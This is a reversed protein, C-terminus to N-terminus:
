AGEKYKKAALDLDLIVRDLTEDKSDPLTVGSALLHGGGGYKNAIPQVHPGNSRFEAHNQGNEQECFFAWIPYGDINSILNVMSGAKNPKLNFRNLTEKDIKLYIVGNETKQYHTFVYGKFAMSEENTINLIRNIKTPDAGLECLLAVQRFAKPFDHIYQFRGTDTVIGLFLANAVVEDIPFKAKLLFDLIIECCSNSKESVIFPGEKFSGTDIHHDFKIWAKALFVRNDEMRPLDNADVLIALSQKIVEDDVIDMHGLLDYFRRMGTGVIFVKKHPFMKKISEKLAVQSGYCDGDPNIHGFIVISDHNIIENLVKDFM